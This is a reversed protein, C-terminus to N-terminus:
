RKMIQKNNNKIYKNRNNHQAESWGGRCASGHSMYHLVSLLWTTPCLTMKSFRQAHRRKADSQKEFFIICRIHWSTFNLASQLASTKPFIHEGGEKRQRKEKEEDQRQRGFRHFFLKSFVIFFYCVVILLYCINALLGILSTHFDCLIYM